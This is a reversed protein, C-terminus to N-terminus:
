LKLKQDLFCGREIVSHVNNSSKVQLSFLQLTVGTWTGRTGSAAVQHTAQRYAACLSVCAGAGIHEGGEHKHETEEGAGVDGEAYGSLVQGRRKAEQRVTHRTM